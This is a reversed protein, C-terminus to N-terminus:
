GFAPRVDWVDLSRELTIGLRALTGEDYLRGWLNLAVPRGRPAREGREGRRMGVRVTLSPHGTFNTLALMGDDARPPSLLADLAHTEFLAHLEHMARRRLREAQILEVAPIFRSARFLNPWAADDQRALADDRDSRTLEDFAAASEASLIAMLPQTPTDPYQVPVLAVGAARLARLASRQSAHAAAGRFSAPEYGVRLGSAPRRCDCAFPLDVVYPDADARPPREPGAIADLVLAADEVTRTIPGLKDLSWALPMAGARSVRGFTPRLGVTGCTSSPSVISGLTESGIAFGVLGAATAAASGASSGSSGTDLSFPNRTKGGFWVDGYALAGLSLKAVLVAGAADLKRVVEADRDPVRDRYPEAGWTTPIGRTDLLDKAGWPIGHLPGRVRGRARERDARDAARLAQEDLLTVVCELRPGLAHLRQLYIRTLRESTLVGHELWRSLRTVPAYAIADDDAPLPPVRGGSRVLRGRAAPFRMGPLRPDFRVAPAEDSAPAVARQLAYGDILGAVRALAQRRERATLTLGALQEAGALSRTTITM